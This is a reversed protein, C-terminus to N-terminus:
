RVHIFVLELVSLLQILVMAIIKLDIRGGLDIFHSDEFKSRKDKVLIVGLMTYLYFLGFLPIFLPWIPVNLKKLPNM